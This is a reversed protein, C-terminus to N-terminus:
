LGLKAGMIVFRRLILYSPVFYFRALLESTHFWFMGHCIRAYLKVVLDFNWNSSDWSGVPMGRSLIFCHYLHSRIPKLVSCQGVPTFPDTKSMGDGPQRWWQVIMRLYGPTYFPKGSGIRRWIRHVSCHGCVFMFNACMCAVVTISTIAAEFALVVGVWVFRLCRKPKQLAYGLQLRELEKLM